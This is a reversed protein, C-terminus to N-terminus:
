LSPASTLTRCAQGVSIQSRRKTQSLGPFGGLHDGPPTQVLEILGEFVGTTAKKPATTSQHSPPRDTKTKQTLRQRSLSLSHTHSHSLSLARSLPLSGSLFHALVFSNYSVTFPQGNTGRFCFLIKSSQRHYPTRAFACKCIALFLFLTAVSRGLRESTRM